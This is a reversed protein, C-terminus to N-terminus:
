DAGLALACSRALAALAAPSAAAGASAAGLAQDSLASLDHESCGGGAGARATAGKGELPSPCRGVEGRFPFALVPAVIRADTEADDSARMANAAADADLAEGGLRVRDRAIARELALRALPAEFELDGARALADEDRVDIADIIAVRGLAEFARPEIHPAGRQRRGLFLFEILGVEDPELRPAAVARHHALHARDVIEAGAGAELDLVCGAFRQEHRERAGGHRLDVDSAAADDDNRGLPEEIRRFRLLPGVCSRARSRSRASSRGRSTGPAARGNARRCPKPRPGSSAQ